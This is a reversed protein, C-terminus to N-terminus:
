RVRANPNEKRFATYQPRLQAVSTAITRESMAGPVMADVLVMGRIRDDRAATM